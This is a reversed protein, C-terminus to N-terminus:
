SHIGRKKHNFFVKKEKQTKNKEERQQGKQKPVSLGAISGLEM